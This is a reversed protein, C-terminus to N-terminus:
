PRTSDDPTAPPAQHRKDFAVLKLVEITAPPPTATTTM